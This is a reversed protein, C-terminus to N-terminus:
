GPLRECASPPCSHLCSSCVRGPPPDNTGVIREEGAEGMKALIHPHPGGKCVCEGGGPGWRWGVGPECTGGGGSKARADPWLSKKRCSMHLIQTFRSSRFCGSFIGWPAPLPGGSTGWHSPGLRSTGGGGLFPAAVWIIGQDKWVSHGYAFASSREPSRSEEDALLAPPHPNPGPVASSRWYSDMVSRGSPWRSPLSAPDQQTPTPPSSPLSGARDWGGGQM